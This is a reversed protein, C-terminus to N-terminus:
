AICDAHSCYHVVGAVPAPAGAPDGGHSAGVLRCLRRFAALDRWLFVLLLSLLQTLLLITSTRVQIDRCLPEANANTLGAQM